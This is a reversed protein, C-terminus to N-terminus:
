QEEAEVYDFIAKILNQVASAAVFIIWTVAATVVGTSITLYIYLLSVAVWLVATVAKYLPSTQRKQANFENFDKVTTKNAATCGSKGKTFILILTAAAIMLFLFVPSIENLPTQVLLICPTACSIYLGIALANLVAKKRIKLAKQTDTELLIYKTNKGYIILGTAFSIMFLMFVPSIDTLSTQALLICPTVCLIYLVVALGYFLSNRSKIAAYMDDTVKNDTNAQTENDCFTKLLENLDGIGLVALNYAEDESKGEDIFDHYRDITNCIIEEQLEHTQKTKPVSAFLNEIYKRLKPEM